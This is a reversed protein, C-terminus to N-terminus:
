SWLLSHLTRTLASLEQLMTRYETSPGGMPDHVDDQPSDGMLDAHRRGEGIEGMWDDLSQESRRQGKESGRRVIERLTFTKTFSPPDALVTERVHERAMGIVIDARTITAVDVEHPVHSSLDLGIRSAERLLERPVPPDTAMTGASDVTVGAPGAKELLQTLLLQASPSRCLNGTCVFLVTTVKGVNACQRHGRAFRTLHAGRDTQSVIPSDAPM